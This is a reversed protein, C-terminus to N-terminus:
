YPVKCPVAYETIRGDEDLLVVIVPFPETGVLHPYNRFYSSQHLPVTGAVEVHVLRNVLCEILEKVVATLGSKDLKGTRFLVLLFDYFHYLFRLTSSHLRLLCKVEVHLM